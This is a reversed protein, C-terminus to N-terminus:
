TIRFLLVVSLMQCTNNTIEGCAPHVRASASQRCTRCPSTYIDRPTPIMYRWSTNADAAPMRRSRPGDWPAIRRRTARWTWGALCPGPRRWGGSWVVLGRPGPRKQITERSNHPVRVVVIPCSLRGGETPCYFSYWSEPQTIIFHCHHILITAAMEKQCVRLGLRNAQDSPQRSGRRQTQM